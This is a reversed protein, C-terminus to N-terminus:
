RHPRTLLLSAAGGALGLPLTTIVRLLLFATGAVTADVGIGILIVAKVVDAAGLGFPLASLIGALM